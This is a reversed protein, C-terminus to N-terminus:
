GSPIKIGDSVNIVRRRRVAVIKLGIASKLREPRTSYGTGGPVPAADTGM